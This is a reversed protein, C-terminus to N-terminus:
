NTYSPRTSARVTAIAARTASAPAPGPACGGPDTADVCAAAGRDGRFAL